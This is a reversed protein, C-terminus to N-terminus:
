WPTSPARRVPRTAGTVPAPGAPPAPRPDPRPHDHREEQVVPGSARAPQNVRPSEDPTRPASVRRDPVPSTGTTLRGTRSKPGPCTLRGHPQPCGGRGPAGGRGARFCPAPLGRAPRGRPGRGAAGAPARRCAPRGAPGRLAPPAGRHGPCRERVRPAAVTGLRGLQPHRALEAWVVAPDSGLALRGVWPRLVTATETSVVGCVAALAGAPAAGASVLAGVLDVLHPLEREVRERRRRAAATELGRARRWAVLGAPLAAAALWGPALLLVAVAVGAGVVVATWGTTGDRGVSSGQWPRRAGGVRSRPVGGPLLLATSVAALAAVTASM